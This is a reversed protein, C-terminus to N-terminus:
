LEDERGIRYGAGQFARNMSMKSIYGLSLGLSILAVALFSALIYRFCRVRKGAKRRDEVRPYGTNLKAVVM